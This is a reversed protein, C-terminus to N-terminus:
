SSGHRRGWSINVGKESAKQTIYPRLFERSLSGPDTGEPLQVVCFGSNLVSNLNSEIITTKDAIKEKVDPDFLLVGAYDKFGRRFLSQQQDTLTAGLTCVAQPGIKWVDTVGEVIIGVQYHQANGFNYLLQRKPTGPATYYKPTNSLKWDTDYAARAQWGVMKKKHYIPIILRNECVFRPSEHCWHVNYFRGIVEPDFGRGALYVNSEHNAPLKDIRTVKGPWNMRVADVDIKHGEAVNAKRLEYLKHGTLMIELKQYAAASRMALQCGANFCTALYTQPRGLEDDQGYRHNIYCRFRTDNCFPCCVAYYEGPHDIVPKPKGTVLDLSMRRIQKEGANKVKVHHFTAKCRRFLTGNLVKQEDKTM